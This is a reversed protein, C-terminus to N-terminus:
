KLLQCESMTPLPNNGIHKKFNIDQSFIILSILILQRNLKPSKCKINQLSKITSIIKERVIFNSHPPNRITLEDSNKPASTYDSHLPVPKSREETKVACTDSQVSLFSDEPRKMKVNIHTDHIGINHHAVEITIDESLIIGKRPITILTNDGLGIKKLAKRLISINQYFTNSSVYRGNKHWVEDMFEEQRIIEGQNKVLKLFCLAAPYNITASTNIDMRTLTKLMPDFCINKNIIYKRKM